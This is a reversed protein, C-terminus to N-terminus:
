RVVEVSALYDRVLKRDAEADLRQEILKGAAALSLEVAERRLEALARDKDAAIERRARALLEEQEARARELLTAREKEAMSRAEAMLAQAGARAEAAARNAEELATQAEANLREAHALHDGIKREREETASVIAPWAFKKLIFFLAIFVLWTWVFLGLNVEFPSTPGEGEAAALLTLWVAYM